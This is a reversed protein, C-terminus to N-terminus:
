RVARVCCLGEHFPTELFHKVFTWAQRNNPSLSACGQVGRVLEGLFGKSVNGFDTSSQEEHESRGHVKECHSYPPQHIISINVKLFPIQKERKIINIHSTIHPLVCQSSPAIYHFTNTDGCRDKLKTRIFTGRLSICGEEELLRMAYM